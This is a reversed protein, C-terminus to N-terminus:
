KRDTEDAHLIKWRRPNPPKCSDGILILKFLADHRSLTKDRIVNCRIDDLDKDM